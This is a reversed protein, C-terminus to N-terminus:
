LDEELDWNRPFRLGMIEDCLNFLPCDTGDGGYRYCRFDRNYHFCVDQILYLSQKILDIDHM